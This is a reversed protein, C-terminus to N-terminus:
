TFYQSISHVPRSVSRCNVFYEVTLQFSLLLAPSCRFPACRAFNYILHFVAPGFFLFLYVFAYTHYARRRWFHESAPQHSVPITFSRYVILRATHRHIMILSSSSSLASQGWSSRRRGPWEHRAQNVHSMLKRLTHKPTSSSFAAASTPACYFPSSTGFALFFFFFCFLLVPGRARSRMQREICQKGEDEEWQAVRGNDHRRIGHIVQYRDTNTDAHTAVACPLRTLLGIGLVHKLYEHGTRAVCKRLIIAPLAM